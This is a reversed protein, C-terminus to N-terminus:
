PLAPAPLGFFVGQPAGESARLALLFRQHALLRPGRLAGDHVHDRRIQRLVRTPILRDWSSAMRTDSSPPERDRGDFRRRAGSFAPRNSRAEPARFSSVRVRTLLEM